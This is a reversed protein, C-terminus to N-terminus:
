FNREHYIDGFIIVQKEAEPAEEPLQKPAELEQIRAVSTPHQTDGIIRSKASNSLNLIKMSNVSDSYKERMKLVSGTNFYPRTSTKQNDYSRSNERQDDIGRSPTGYQAYSNRLM